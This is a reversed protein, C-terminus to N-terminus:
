KVICKEVFISRAMEGKTSCELNTHLTACIHGIIVKKSCAAVATQDVNIEHDSRIFHVNITISCVTRGLRDHAATLPRKIDLKRENKTPNQSTAKTGGTNYPTSGTWSVLTFASAM